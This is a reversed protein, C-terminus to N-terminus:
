TRQEFPLSSGCRVNDGWKALMKPQQEEETRAFDFIVINKVLQTLISDINCPHSKISECFCQSKQYLAIM